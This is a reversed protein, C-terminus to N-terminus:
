SITSETSQYSYDKEEFINQGNGNEGSLFLTQGGRDTEQNKEYSDYNNSISSPTSISAFERYGSENIKTGVHIYVDKDIYILYNMFTNFLFDIVDGHKEREPFPIHKTEYMDKIIPLLILTSLQKLALRGLSKKKLDIGKKKESVIHHLFDQDANYREKVEEVHKGLHFIYKIGDIQFKM